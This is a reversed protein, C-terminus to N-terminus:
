AVYSLRDSLTHWHHKSIKIMDDNDCSTLFLNETMWLHQRLLALADSFTPCSKNYWAAQRTTVPYACRHLQEAVMTVWSFLGLLIPTTRAIAKDSWQRQSEVGLHRRAEEFTVEVQWRTVFWAVITEPSRTPDTCLLAIPDYQQLPDRVMVWRIPVTPKGYHFWVATGTAIEIRYQKGSYWAIEISQWDTDEAHLHQALTAQRQGKNRPRGRGSYPPAPEYLAADWRLRTIFTVGLKQCGHLFDIAAYTGDGVAIVDQTPLWRKLQKLGQMARELMTKAKRNQQEYYRQSPALITLIPLAWIRSAWSIPTLLM